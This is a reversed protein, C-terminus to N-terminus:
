RRSAKRAEYLAWADNINGSGTLRDELAQINAQEQADDPPAPQNPDQADTGALAAYM